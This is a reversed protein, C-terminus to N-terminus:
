LENIGLPNTSIGGDAYTIAESIHKRRDYPEHEM